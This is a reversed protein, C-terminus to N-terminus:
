RAAYLAEILGDAREAAGTIHRGPGRGISPVVEVGVLERLTDLIAQITSGPFGLLHWRLRLRLRMSSTTTEAGCGCCSDLRDM